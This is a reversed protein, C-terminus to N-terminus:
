SAASLATHALKDVGTTLVAQLNAATAAPTAGIAFQNPGPPTATTATLTLDEKSGDPLNVSFKITEGNSPNITGLSVSIGAPSGSPGTVTAGTLTSNVGALKFGFVSGAVDESLSLAGTPPGSTSQVGFKAPN